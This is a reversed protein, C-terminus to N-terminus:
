KLRNGCNPCTLYIPGVPNGCVPCNGEPTERRIVTSAAAPVVVQKQSGSKKRVILFLLALVLVVLVAIVIISILAMAFINGTPSQISIDYGTLVYGIRLEQTPISGGAPLNTNDAVLFFHTNQALPFNAVSVSEGSQGTRSGEAIYTFAQNNKYKAFNSEDMLMIDYYVPGNDGITFVTYSIDPTFSQSQDTTFEGIVAQDNLAITATGTRVERRIGDAALAPVAASLIMCAAALVSAM